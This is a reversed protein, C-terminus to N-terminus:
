EMEMNMNASNTKNKMARLRKRVAERLSSESDLLFQGSTVVLETGTLGDLVEYYGGEGSVGLTVERPEFKGKGYSIFVIDREGSHIVSEKPIVVANEREAAKIVINAYMGPKLVRFIEKFVASKELTLNIVCNSIALDVSNNEIPLSEATGLKFSVNKIGMKNANSSAKDIMQETMDVGYVFGDSGVKKAARLVDYGTGSGIDLVTDGSLADEAGGIGCGLSFVESSTSDEITSCCDTACCSSGTKAINGYYEKINNELIEM